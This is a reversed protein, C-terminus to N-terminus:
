LILQVHDPLPIHLLIGAACGWGGGGWFFIYLTGGLGVPIKFSFYKDRTLLQWKLPATEGRNLAEQFDLLPTPILQFDM